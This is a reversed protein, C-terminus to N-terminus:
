NIVGVFFTLCESGVRCGDLTSWGETSCHVIMTVRGGEFVSTKSNKGFVNAILDVRVIAKKKTLHVINVLRYCFQCFLLCM